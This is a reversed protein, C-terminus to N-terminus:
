AAAAAPDPVLASDGRNWAELTAAASAEELLICAAAGFLIDPRLEPEQEVLGGCVNRAAIQEHVSDAEVHEDFYRIVNPGLGLRAAGQAYRRCPQSSTMEFAALHGVCAGRLRRHLGFLSMANNFALVDAPARDIYSGYTPDLSAEALAAAFMQQHINEPVGAGLEDFQIEAFGAKVSGSLRPLVWAHPDSEKLHYISRQVLFEKFQELTADRQLFRTLPPGQHDAIAQLQEVISGQTTDVGSVVDSTLDRLDREFGYELDRRLGLLGPDWEKAPDIDDFGRYHQEYLMWLSVQLDEEGEAEAAAPVPEDHSLSATLAASLPGRALPLRM